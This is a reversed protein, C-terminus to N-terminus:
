LVIEEITVRSVSLVTHGDRKINYIFKNLAKFSDFMNFRPESVVQHMIITNFSWYLNFYKFKNTKM